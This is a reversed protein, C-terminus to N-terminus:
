YRPMGQHPALRTQAALRIPANVEGFGAYSRREVIEFFFGNEFTTTYIQFYEGTSDRDYLIQNERLRIIDAESLDTRAELDDYYNEPIPLLEVGGSRLKEATAVIDDTALAIHQVGSGFFQNLFRSSLTRQSQSANLVLRLAGDKTSVVQSQVIGGPDVVNRVLTKDVDLLSTYFLLWTLMEEDHMSQSIHDVRALGADPRAEALVPTFEVDWIASLASKDDVFYVLSGGLGRVAPMELEGPGVAQTFPQDLLKVARQITADADDMRLGIACVASGHTINYSHAFGEKDCNVVINIGGQRWRTVAKTKHVGAKAFGLQALLAEFSAAATEDMAFELFEVGLVKGRQPLEPLGKVPIGTRRRLADLIFILSRQGDIAVSRASGARFRDSFIEHSLLGDYGTAQLTEMFSDVPLEGQGPFSRYHRSWSLYDMDLLPADALQVLFIRDAPISRMARLDTKRALTHFSDLVLGVSPHGARRVVEWADRYDNIHRGWALAEFAVRLGRKAAREGLEYFDEAARDIGGLSDPSVNSCILLLDCGLEQMLDFKREARAFTKARQPEPMGEFDRFPQFTVIALGLDSVMRRVDAPTGNFGLLDNEFIEVGKFRAAAIAELKENLTGSLCVTAIATQM